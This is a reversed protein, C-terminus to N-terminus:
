RILAIANNALLPYIVKVSIFSDRVYYILRGEELTMVSKILHMVKSAIIGFKIM